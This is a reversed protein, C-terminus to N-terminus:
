PEKAITPRGHQGVSYRDTSRRPWLGFRAVPYRLSGGESSPHCKRSRGRRGGESTLAQPERISGSANSASHLSPSSSPTPRPCGRSTLHRPCAAALALCGGPPPLRWPPAAALPLCGGPPPLRWPSAAALPLCGGPPPLRWPSAAALPLCGGPPPLRWPLPPPAGPDGPAPPPAGPAGPAGSL